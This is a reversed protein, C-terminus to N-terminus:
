SLVQKLEQLVAEIQLETILGRRLLISGLLRHERGAVNDDIQEMIAAKLEDITVFGKRVAISGFRRCLDGTVGGDSKRRRPNGM